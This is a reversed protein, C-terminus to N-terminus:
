KNRNLMPKAASSRNSQAAPTCKKRANKKYRNTPPLTFNFLQLSLSPLRKSCHLANFHLVASFFTFAYPSHLSVVGIRENIFAMLQAITCRTFVGVGCEKHTHTGNQSQRANANIICHQPKENMEM